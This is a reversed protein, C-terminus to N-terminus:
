DITSRLIVDSNRMSDNDQFQGRVSFKEGATQLFQLSKLDKKIYGSPKNLLSSIDMINFALDRGDIKSSNKKKMAM